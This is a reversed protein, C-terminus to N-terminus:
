SRGLLKNRVFEIRGILNARNNSADSTTWEKFETSLLWDDVDAPVLDPKERLALGVGVSIAEFRVRPVKRGPGSKKFGDPLYNEIFSITRYWEERLRNAEDSNQKLLENADKVYNLLFNKVIKGGVGYSQYRDMFAFYRTVFEEYEYRRKMAESVPALAHLRGDNSLETALTLFPGPQIGRRVEVAELGVSGSNIRDFM